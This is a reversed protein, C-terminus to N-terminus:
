KGKQLDTVMKQLRRNDENRTTLEAELTAVKNRLAMYGNVVGQVQQVLGLQDETREAPTALQKKLRENEAKLHQVEQKLEIESM